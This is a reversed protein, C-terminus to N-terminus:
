LFVWLGAGVYSALLVGGEWRHIERSSLAIFLILVSVALVAPLEVRLVSPSVDIPAIASTLGLVAALNFINSGIINGVAIDSEKRVTAVVSTALEPLSTGIAVVTLGIVLESVGMDLAIQRANEVVLNGGFVVGAAGVVLQGFDRVPKARRDDEIAEETFDEYEELVIEEEEATWGIFVLYLTLVALLIAGDFRGLRLDFVLPFVLLTVVLMIPVERAVVRSALKLPSLVAALGLILGLNALNSGLVNGIALDGGGELAALVCVVMEPASTGLSVVTLGVVIPSIGLSNALRAAGKVLWEAGLYLLGAGLAVLVAALAM